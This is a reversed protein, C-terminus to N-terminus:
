QPRERVMALGEPASIRKLWSIADVDAEFSAIYPIGVDRAELTLLADHVNVRGQHPGRLDLIAAFLGPVHPSSWAPPHRRCCEHFRACADPWADLRRREAFRRCLVSITENAVGDFFIVEWGEQDLATWLTVAPQRLADLEDLRPGVMSTDLIIQSM